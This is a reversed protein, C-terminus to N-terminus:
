KQLYRQSGFVGGLLDGLSPLSLSLTFFSLRSAKQGFLIDFFLYALKLSIEACWEDDLFCISSEDEVKYVVFQSFIGSFDSLSRYVRAMLNEPPMLLGGGLRLGM